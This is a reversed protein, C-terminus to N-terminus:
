AEGPDVGPRRRVQISGGERAEAVTKHGQSVGRKEANVAHTGRTYQIARCNALGVEAAQTVRSATAQLM